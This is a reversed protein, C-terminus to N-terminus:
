VGTVNHDKSAFFGLSALFGTVTVFQETTILKFFYLVILILIVTGILSTKWSKM